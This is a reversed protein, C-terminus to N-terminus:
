VEKEGKKPISMMMRTAELTEVRDELEKPMAELVELVTRKTLVGAQVCAAMVGVLADAMTPIAFPELVNLKVHLQGDAESIVIEKEQNFMKSMFEFKEEM